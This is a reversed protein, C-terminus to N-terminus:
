NHCFQRLAARIGDAGLPEDIYVLPATTYGQGGDTVPITGSLSGSIITASGLKAGGPQKFTVRPNFTYGSGSSIIDVDTVVGNTVTAKM